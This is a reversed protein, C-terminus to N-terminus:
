FIEIVFIFFFRRHKTLAARAFWSVAPDLFVVRPPMPVSAGLAKNVLQFHLIQSGTGRQFDGLDAQRFVARELKVHVLFSFLLPPRGELRGEPRGFSCM